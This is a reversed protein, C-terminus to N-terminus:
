VKILFIIEYNLIIKLQSLISNDDYIFFIQFHILKFINLKKIESNYSKKFM